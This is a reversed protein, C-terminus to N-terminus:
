ISDSLKRFMRGKLSLVLFFSFFLVFSFIGGVDVRRRGRQIAKRRPAVVVVVVVVMAAGAASAAVFSMRM